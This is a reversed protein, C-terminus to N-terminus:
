NAPACVGLLCISSACDEAAGCSEGNGKKIGGSQVPPTAPQPPLTETTPLPGATKVIAESVTIGAAEGAYNDGFQFDLRAHPNPLKGTNSYVVKGGADDYASTAVTVRYTGGPDVRVHAFLPENDKAVVSSAWSHHTSMHRVSVGELVRPWFGMYKGAGNPVISMYADGGASFDYTEKSQIRNGDYAGNTLRGNTWAGGTLVVSNGQPTVAGRYQQAQQFAGGPVNISRAAGIPPPPQPIPPAAGPQAGGPQAGAVPGPIARPHQALFAACTSNGPIARSCGCQV